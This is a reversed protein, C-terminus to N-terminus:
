ILLGDCWENMLNLEAEELIRPGRETEETVVRHVSVLAATM